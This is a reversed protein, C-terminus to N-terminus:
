HDRKLKIYNNKGDVDWFLVYKKYFMIIREQLNIM